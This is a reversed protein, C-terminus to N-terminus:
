NSVTPREGDDRPADCMRHRKTHFCRHVCRLPDLLRRQHLHGGFTDDFEHNGVVLIKRGPAARFRKLRRGSLGGIAIDGLIVITDDPEVVRRWAGFLADDMEDPTKYPRGFVSITMAHGLDSTDWM